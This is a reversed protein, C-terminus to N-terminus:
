GGRMAPHITLTADEPCQDGPDAPDGDLAIRVSSILEGDERFLHREARPYARVFADLADRVTRGDFEVSVHKGGTASRLPGYVTVDM